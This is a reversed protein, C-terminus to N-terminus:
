FRPMPVVRMQEMKGHSGHPGPQTVSPGFGGPRLAREALTGLRRIQAAPHIGTDGDGWSATNASTQGMMVLQQITGAVTTGLDLVRAADAMGVDALQVHAIQASALMVVSVMAARRLMPFRM